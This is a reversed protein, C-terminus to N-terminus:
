EIIKGESGLDDMVASVAKRFSKGQLPTCLQLGRLGSPGWSRRWAYRGAWQRTKLERGPLAPQTPATDVEGENLVLGPDDTLVSCRHRWCGAGHGSMKRFVVMRM